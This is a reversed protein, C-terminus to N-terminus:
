RHHNLWLPECRRRLGDGYIIHQRVQQRCIFKRRAFAADELDATRIDHGVAIEDTFISAELMQSTPQNEDGHQRGVEGAQPQRQHSWGAKFDPPMQDFARVASENM